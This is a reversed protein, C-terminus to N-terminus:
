TLRDGPPEMGNRRKSAAAEDSTLFRVLERAQQCNAGRSCLGISFATRPLITEPVIGVITIGPQGMLESLQQFGIDAKGEALLSAVPVGPPSQIIRPGSAGMLGQRELLAKMNTGSPGSSVGISGVRAILAMVSAEDLSTPVPAGVPVALASPSRAFAVLSPVDIHGEKALTEMAETALLALDFREGARIRKAADSGGISVVAIRKGTAETYAPALEALMQKTAMSSILSVDPKM